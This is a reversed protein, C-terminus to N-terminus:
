FVQQFPYSLLGDLKYHRNNSAKQTQGLPANRANNISSARTDTQEANKGVQVFFVLFKIIEGVSTPRYQVFEPVQTSM